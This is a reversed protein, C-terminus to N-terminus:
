NEWFEPNPGLKDYKLLLFFCDINKSDGLKVLRYILHAKKKVAHIWLDWLSCRASADSM